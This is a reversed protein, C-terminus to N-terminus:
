EYPTNSEDDVGKVTQSFSGEVSTVTLRYHCM